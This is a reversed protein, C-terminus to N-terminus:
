QGTELLWARLQADAQPVSMSLHQRIARAFDARSSQWPVDAYLARVVAKGWREDVWQVFAGGIPYTLLSSHKLFAQSELLDPLSIWNGDTMVMRAYERVPQHQWFGSLFVALGETLLPPPTGLNRSLVHVTEHDDVTWITFVSTGDSHGNGDRGTYAEKVVTDPYKWYHIPAANTVGLYTASGAYRAETYERHTPPIEDGPLWHYVYHGFPESRWGPDVQAVEVNDFWATGPMSLFLGVTATHAGAPVTYVRTLQSWPTTGSLVRLAQVGGDGFRVYLNCNDFVARAPDVGETRMRVSVSLMKTPDLTIRRSIAVFHTDQPRVRLVLEGDEVAFESTAGLGTYAGEGVTWGALSADDFHEEIVTPEGM